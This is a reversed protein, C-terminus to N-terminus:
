LSRLFDTNKRQMLIGTSRKRKKGTDKAIEQALIEGPQVIYKRLRRMYLLRDTLPTSSWSPFAKKALAMASRVQDSTAESLEGLSSGDFAQQMYLTGM